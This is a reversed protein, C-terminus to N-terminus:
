FLTKICPLMRLPSASFMFQSYASVPFFGFPNHLFSDASLEVAGLRPDAPGTGGPEALKLYFIDGRIEHRGFM